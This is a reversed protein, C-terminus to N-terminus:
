TPSTLCNLLNIFNKPPVLNVIEELAMFRKTLGAEM